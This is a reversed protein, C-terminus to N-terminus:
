LRRSFAVVLRVTNKLNFDIFNPTSRRQLYYFFGVRVGFSSTCVSKVGFTLQKLKYADWRSPPASSKTLQLLLRKWKLASIPLKFGNNYMVMYFGSGYVVCLCNAFGIFPHDHSFKIATSGCVVAVGTVVARFVCIIGAQSKNFLNLEMQLQRVISYSLKM